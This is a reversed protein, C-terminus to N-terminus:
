IIVLNNAHIVEEYDSHGILREIQNSNHGKIINVEYSSYNIIGYGVINNCEDIIKVSDGKDFESRVDKIGSALLSKRNKIAISAGTDIIIEGSSTYSIWNKKNSIKKDRGLFITGINKGNMIDILVNESSGNAIIMDAGYSNVIKGAKLKTDMGGTGLNTGEGNALALVKDNIEPVVEILKANINKRPNDTYLGDIDSLIILLDAEILSSVMASLSDNDGVKIEEVVVADNENIIPIIKHQFLSLFTNKANLFRKRNSMDESNLLIQGITKNYELFLKQYIHLLAVQGIAASAQKDPLNKPKETFGMKGFGAAIAGSSVLTVEIGRNSIDAINRVLQEIRSYNLLGNDYTLTSTGLKIVLRKVKKINEKRNM